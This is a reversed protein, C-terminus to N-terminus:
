EAVYELIDEVSCNLNQCISNLMELDLRKVKEKCLDGITNPRANINKALDKKTMKERVLLDALKIKIM